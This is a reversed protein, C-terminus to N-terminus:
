MINLYYNYMSFCAGSIWSFDQKQTLLTARHNMGLGAYASTKKNLVSFMYLFLKDNYCNCEIVLDMGLIISIM